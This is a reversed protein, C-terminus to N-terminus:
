KTLYIFNKIKSLDIKKGFLKINTSKNIKTFIFKILYYIYYLTAITTIVFNLIPVRNFDEVITADSPSAGRDFRGNEDMLCDHENFPKNKLEAILKRYKKNLNCIRITLFHSVFSLLFLEGIFTLVTM